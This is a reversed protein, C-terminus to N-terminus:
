AAPRVGSEGCNAPLTAVTAPQRAVRRRLTFRFRTYWPCKPAVSLAADRSLRRAAALQELEATRMAAYGHIDSLHQSTM